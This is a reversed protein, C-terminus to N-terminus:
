EGTRRFIPPIAPLRPDLPVIYPVRPEHEGRQVKELAQSRDMEMASQMVKNLMDPKYSRALLMQRLKMVDKEKSPPAPDHSGWVNGEVNNGDNEEQRLNLKALALQCTERVEMPGAVILIM